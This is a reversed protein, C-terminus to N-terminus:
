KSFDLIDNIITLLNLGAQKVTQIHERADDRDEERLAIDAMGIIANMPTRIKHSMNAFFASKARSAAMAEAKKENIIRM